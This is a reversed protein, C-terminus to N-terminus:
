KEEVFGSSFLDIIEEIKNIKYNSHDFGNHNDSVWVTQLGLSKAVTVNRLSDDVFLCSSTDRIGLKQFAIEFAEAMPKCFPQIDMIDVIEEFFKRIDLAELVRNAHWHDANTFIVKKQPISSLFDKLIANPKILKQIPVDHVFHLYKLPDIHHELQLGRLTTGYKNFYEVQAILADSKSYGLNEVMFLNIRDRLLTWIGNSPPYLTDDLDFIIMSINM